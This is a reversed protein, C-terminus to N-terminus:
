KSRRPLAPVNARKKKAAEAIKVRERLDLLEEYAPRVPDADLKSLLERHDMRLYPAHRDSLERAMTFYREDLQHLGYDSSGQGLLRPRANLNVHASFILDPVRRSLGDISSRPRCSDLSIQERKKCRCHGSGITEFREHLGPPRETQRNWLTIEHIPQALVPDQSLSCKFRLREGKDSGVSWNKQGLSLGITSAANNLM